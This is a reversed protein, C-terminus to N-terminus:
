ANEWAEDEKNDWLEKMKQQQIQHLFKDYHNGEKIARFIKIMDVILSNYPQNPYERAEKLKKVVSKKLQITTVEAM